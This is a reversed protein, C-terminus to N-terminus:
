QWRRLAWAMRSAVARMRPRAKWSQYDLRDSEDCDRRFRATMRTAPATGHIEIDLEANRLLSLSDLNTSGILTWTDDVVVSKAHLMAGRWLFVSCGAELLPGLAHEASLGVLRHNNRGPILLTVEVGRGAADRLAQGITAPPVVYPNTILVRREAAEIVRKLVRMTPRDGGLPRLVRVPIDGAREAPQSTAFGPTQKRWGRWALAWARDFSHAGETVAPGRVEVASDRWTCHRICNGAWPDALCMGGAIMTDSDAVLLKRHDRGLSRRHRTPVGVNFMGVDVGSGRFLIDVPPRRAMVSGVPDHLVRIAVGAAARERLEHAFARGVTDARFIFNELRVQHRADRLAELMATFTHSGDALLRVANGRMMPTGSLRRLDRLVDRAMPGTSREEGPDTVWAPEESTAHHAGCAPGCGRRGTGVCCEELLARVEAAAPPSM